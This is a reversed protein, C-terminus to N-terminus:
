PKLASCAAESGVGAELSLGAHACAWGKAMLAGVSAIQVLATFSVLAAQCDVSLTTCIPHLTISAM